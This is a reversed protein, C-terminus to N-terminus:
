SARREAQATIVARIRERLEEPSRRLMSEWSRLAAESDAEMFHRLAQHVGRDLPDLVLATGLQTLQRRARAVRTEDEDLLPETSGPPGTLSTSM